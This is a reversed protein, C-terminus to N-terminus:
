NLYGYVSKYNWKWLEYNLFRGIFLVTITMKMRPQRDPIYYGQQLIAARCFFTCFAIGVTPTWNIIYKICKALYYSVARYVKKKSIFHCKGKPIYKWIVFKREIILFQKYTFSRILRPFNIVIKLSPVKVM